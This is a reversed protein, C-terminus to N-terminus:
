RAEQAELNSATVKNRRKVGMLGLAERWSGVSSRPLSALCNPIMLACRSVVLSGLVVVVKM